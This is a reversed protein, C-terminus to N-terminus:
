VQKEPEPEQLSMGHRIIRPGVLSGFLSSAIVIPVALDMYIRSNIFSSGVTDVILPLQSIVLATLGNSFVLRSIAAEDDSLKIFGGVVNVSLIRIM